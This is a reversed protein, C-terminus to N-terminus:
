LLIANILTSIFLALTLWGIIPAMFIVIKKCIGTIYFGRIFANNNFFSAGSLLLCNKLRSKIGIKAKILEVLQHVEGHRLYRDVVEAKTGTAMMDDISLKQQLDKKKHNHAISILLQSCEKERIIHGPTVYLFISIIVIVIFSFRLPYLPKVLYGSTLYQFYLWLKKGWTIPSATLRERKRELEKIEFFCDNANFRAGEKRFNEYLLYYTTKINHISDNQEFCLHESLQSWRCKLRNFSIDRLLIKCSDGISLKGIDLLGIITMDRFDISDSITNMDSEFFIFENGLVRASKCNLTRLRMHAFSLRGKFTVKEMIIRSYMGFFFSVDGEFIVPDWQASREDAGQLPASDTQSFNIYGVLGGFTVEKKFTSGSFYVTDASFTISAEDEFTCKLIHAPYECTNWFFTYSKFVCDEIFLEKKFTASIKCKDFFTCLSLKVTKDVIKKWGWASSLNVEGYIKAFEVVITDYQSSM